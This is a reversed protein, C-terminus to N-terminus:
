NGAADRFQTCFTFMHAGSPLDLAPGFCSRFTGPWYLFFSFHMFSWLAKGKAVSMCAVVVKRVVGMQSKDATELGSWQPEGYM